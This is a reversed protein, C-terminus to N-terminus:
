ERSGRTLERVATAVDDPLRDFTRRIRKSADPYPQLARWAAVLDDPRDVALAELLSSAQALDKHAKTQFAATRRTSTHLKHFAFRAPQPVSVLVARPGVVVARIPSEILYELFRVPTASLGLAPVLVPGEPDRGRVPVLFDVRLDLSRVSFSASARRSDLGPIPQFGEAAGLLRDAVSERDVAPSLGVALDPEHAIDVDETRVASAALRVGLATGLCRYAVTGVLVGGLRFVQAGRLIELVKVIAASEAAVGGATIMACLRHVSDVQDQMSEREEKVREMWERLPQSDPGLYLQRKRRGESKQLYWYCRGKVEKRVFSGSGAIGLADEAELRISRELLEAYVTQTPAPLRERM